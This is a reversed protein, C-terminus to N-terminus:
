LYNYKKFQISSRQLLKADIVRCKMGKKAYFSQVRGFATAYLSGPQANLYITEMCDVDPIIPVQGDINLLKLAKNLDSRIEGYDDHKLEAPSFSHICQDVPNYVKITVNEKIALEILKDTMSDM